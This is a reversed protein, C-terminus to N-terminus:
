AAAVLEEYPIEENIRCERAVFPLTLLVSLAGVVLWSVTVNLWMSMNGMPLMSNHDWYAAPDGMQYLAQIPNLYYLHIGIGPEMGDYVPQRAREPAVLMCLLFVNCLLWAVWRNRFAVSLFMCFLSLGLVYALVMIAAQPFDGCIAAYNAPIPNQKAVPSQPPVVAGGSGFTAGARSPGRVFRSNVFVPTAAPQSTPVAVIPAIRAARGIDVVKGNLVFSLVFTGLCMVTAILLFPLGSALKGRSMGQRSWGWLLYRGFRRAEYARLEGTAFAPVLLSLVFVTVILVSIPAQLQTQVVQGGRHYWTHLWWDNVGLLLVGVFLLTLGRLVRAHREPFMELRSMSIASLLVGALTCIIAFGIGDLGRIGLFSPGFLPSGISRLVNDFIGQAFSIRASNWVVLGCVSTVFLTGYTLMVSITTTKALSSWMLGMAGIFFSTFLLLVFTSVVMVPDVSGLMFCISVLPLSSIILLATFSVASLLKGVIIGWRSMRTMTLMDLTRQEKELTIAGSTIAPTIFLVLFMQTIIVYNFIQEGLRSSESAGGGAASVQMLWVQYAALLVGSLFGLYGFLIWYARAGRMRVRLEKILVPNDPMLRIVLSM